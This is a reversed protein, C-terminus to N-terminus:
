SASPPLPSCPGPAKAITEAPLCPCALCALHPSSCKFLTPLSQTVHISELQSTGPGPTTLAPSVPKTPSLYLLHGPIHAKCQNTQVHFAHEGNLQKSERPILYALATEGPNALGSPIDCCRLVRFTFFVISVGPIGKGRFATRKSFNQEFDVQNVM